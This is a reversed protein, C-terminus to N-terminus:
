PREWNAILWVRSFAEAPEHAFNLKCSGLVEDLDIFIAWPERYSEVSIGLRLLEELLPGALAWSGCFDCPVVKESQGLPAHSLTWADRRTAIERNVEDSSLSAVRERIEAPTM